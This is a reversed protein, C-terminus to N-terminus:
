DSDYEGVEGSNYDIELYDVIAAKAEEASYCVVVANGEAKLALIFGMQNESVTGRTDSKGGRKMEIYLAHFGGRSVPLCLDPVGSKLGEARMYAAVGPSRKAANPIAYLLALTKRHGQAQEAAWAVVTVQEDHELPVPSGPLPAPPPAQVPQVAQTEQAKRSEMGRLLQGAEGSKTGGPLAQLRHLEAATIRM